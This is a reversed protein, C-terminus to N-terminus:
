SDDDAQEDDLNIDFQLEDDDSRRQPRHSPCRIDSSQPPLQQPSPNTHQASQISHLIHQSQPPLSHASLYSNPKGSLMSFVTPSTGLNDHSSIHNLKKDAQQNTQASTQRGLRGQPPLDDNIIYDSVSKDNNTSNIDLEDLEDIRDHQTSWADSYKMTPHQQGHAPMSASLYDISTNNSLSRSYATPNRSSPKATTNNVHQIPAFVPPSPPLSMPPPEAMSARPRQVPARPLVKIDSDYVPASSALQNNSNIRSTSHAHRMSVPKSTTTNTRQQALGIGLGSPPLGIYQSM